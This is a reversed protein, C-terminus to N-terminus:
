SLLSPFSSFVARVCKENWLYACRNPIIHGLNQIQSAAFTESTPSCNFRVKGM